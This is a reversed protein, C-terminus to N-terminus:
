WMMSEKVIESGLFSKSKKVFVYVLVVYASTVAAKPSLLVLISRGLVIFQFTQKRQFQIIM